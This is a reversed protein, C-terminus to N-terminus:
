FMVLVLVPLELLLVFRSTSKNTQASYLFKIQTSYLLDNLNGSYINESWGFMM